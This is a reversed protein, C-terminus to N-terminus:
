KCVCNLGRKCRKLMGTNGWKCPLSGQNFKRVKTVTEGPKLLELIQRYVVLKDVQDEGTASEEGGGRGEKWEREEEVQWVVLCGCSYVCSKVHDCQNGLCM